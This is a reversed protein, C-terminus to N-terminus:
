DSNLYNLLIGGVAQALDPANEEVAIAIALPTGTWESTTGGILWTLPQDEHITAHASQFWIAQNSMALESQVRKAISRSMVASESHEQSIEIWKGDPSLYSNILAPPPQIGDNSIAAAVLAMQLPSVKLDMVLTPDQDLQNLSPASPPSSTQIGLEPANFVGFATLTELLSTPDAANLYDQSTSQCGAQLGNLDLKNSQIVQYCRNDLRPLDTLNSLQLTNEIQWDSKLALTSALTGIPYSGQTARNLLPADDRELLSEWTDELQNADFWPHSALAYVEGTHANLIVVAGDRNGLLQDAHRQLTLNLNLKLDLGAPPQNYLLEHLWQDRWPIGNYGRLYDYQSSEIGSQGFAPQAYGLTNSLEPVLTHREYSGSTGRTEVLKDGSLALIDGRPSYRDYVAWRPNEAKAELKEQYPFALFGNWAITLIFIGSIIGAVWKYPSRINAPLVKPTSSTSMKLLLLIALMNTVLSSGGYSVFPLTVGTLPILGLNGSIIFVSQLAFFASIGFALYRGFTSKGCLAIHIGRLIIFLLALLVACTGLLGLEEGIATFIFDSVAVPVFQPSGLGPGTGTIGGSAIAIQAQALQWANGSANLWPNLWIDVRTKVVDFVFYGVVGALLGLAPIIWLLRRRQTTVSLMLVYLSIFIGATGLDRQAILLLGAFAVVVLTPFVSSIWSNNPRLQDAFFAALYIILLLKLPESPQIYIGFLKLWLKDGSGTPNVGVVFTLGILILGLLLWVYKYSKLTKILEPINLSIIFIFAAFLYWFSQRLGLEPSLRWITLIGIGTLAATMPFIWPDRNPLKREINRQLVLTSALWIVYPILYHWSVTLKDAHTRIGTALALSATLLGVSLCVLLLM